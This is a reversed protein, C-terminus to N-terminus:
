EGRSATFIAWCRGSLRTTNKATPNSVVAGGLAMATQSALLSPRVFKEMRTEWTSTGGAMSTIRQEGTFLTWPNRAAPCTQATIPVPSYRGSAAFYRTGITTVPNSGSSM